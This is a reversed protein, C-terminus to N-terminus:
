ARYDVSLQKVSDGLLLERDELSGVDFCPCDKNHTKTQWYGEGNYNCFICPSSFVSM